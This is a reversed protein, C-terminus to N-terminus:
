QISLGPFVSGFELEPASEPGSQEFANLRKAERDYWLVAKCNKWRRSMFRDMHHERPANFISVCGDMGNVKCSTRSDVSIGHTRMVREHFLGLSCGELIMDAMGWRRFVVRRKNKSNEFSMMVNAPLSVMDEIEYERPLFAHVGFISYEMLPDDNFDFSNLVPSMVEPWSRFGSASSTEFIWRILKKSKQSYALAQAQVSLDLYGSMFRGIRGTKLESKEMVRTRPTRVNNRLFAVMTTEVDPESTCSEWSVTAMLGRRTAFEIRGARDELSYASVEWDHPVSARVHHWCIRNTRDDKM